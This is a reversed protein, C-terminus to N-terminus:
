QIFEWDNATIDEPTLRAYFTAGNTFLEKLTGNHFVYPVVHRPRKFTCGSFAQTVGRDHCTTIDTLTM